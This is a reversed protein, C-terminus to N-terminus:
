NGLGVKALRTLKSAIGDVFAGGHGNEGLVDICYWLVAYPSQLPLHSGNLRTLVPMGERQTLYAIILPHDPSLKDVAVFGAHHTGHGVCVGLDHQGAECTHDSVGAIAESSGITYDGGFVGDNDLDMHMDADFIEGSAMAISPDLVSAYEAHPSQALTDCWLVLAARYVAGAWWPPRMSPQMTRALRLVQGAHFIAEEVDAICQAHKNQLWQRNWDGSSELSTPSSPERRALREIEPFNTVANLSILHFMVLASQMMPCIPRTRLFQDALRYWRQLLTRVEDFQRNNSDMTGSSVKRQSSSFVSLSFCSRLQRYQFVITQIPHLLLRLQLASLEPSPSTLGENLFQSFLERLSVPWHDCSHYIGSSRRRRECHMAWAQASRAHWLPDPHPLAAGFEQSSLLPAMDHFLAIDQDLM